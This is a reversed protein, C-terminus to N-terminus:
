GSLRLHKLQTRPPRATEVRYRFKRDNVFSDLDRADIRYGKLRGVRVVPLEGNAVLLYVNAASCGLRAAAKKVTLLQVGSERENLAM